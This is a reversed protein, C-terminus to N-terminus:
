VVRAQSTRQGRTRQLRQVVPGVCWGKHRVNKWRAIFDSGLEVVAHDERADHTGGGGNRDRGIYDRPLAATRPEMGFGAHLEQETM